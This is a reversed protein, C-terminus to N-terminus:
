QLSLRKMGQPHQNTKIFNMIEQACTAADRYTSDIVIDYYDIYTHVGDIQGRALGVCRNGRMKERRELEQLDCIIGVFYVTDERLITAYNNAITDGRIFVEDVVVDHGYNALCKVVQPMTDDMHRAFPGTQVHIVPNNENDVTQMFSYGEGAHSGFEKYHDPVMAWFRDIGTHLLPKDHLKQLEKAISSKGASSCGNIIIIM